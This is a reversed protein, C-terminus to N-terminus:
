VLKGSGDLYIVPAMGTILRLMDEYSSNSDARTYVRRLELRGSINGSVAATPMRGLISARLMECLKQGDAVTGLRVGNVYVSDALTVGSIAHLLASTLADKEDAAPHFCFCLRRETVPLKANYRLIEEAAEEAARLSEKLASPSYTGPLPAGDVTVRYQPHLHVALLALLALLLALVRFKNM